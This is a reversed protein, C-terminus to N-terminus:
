WKVVLAVLVTKGDIDETKDTVTYGAGILTQRIREIVTYDFMYTDLWTENKGYEALRRAAEAETLGRNEMPRRKRKPLFVQRRKL